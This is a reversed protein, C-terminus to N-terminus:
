TRGMVAGVWEQNDLYWQVTERIGREFTHAPTWGLEDRIKSADIAYRRDAVMMSMSISHGHGAMRLAFAEVLRDAGATACFVSAKSLLVINRGPLYVDEDPTNYGPPRGVVAWHAASYIDSMDVSLAALPHIAMAFPLTRLSELFADVAGREATEWALGASIYVPLVEGRTAEEALLM